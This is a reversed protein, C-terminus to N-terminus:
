QHHCSFLVRVARVPCACVNALEYICKECARIFIRRNRVRGTQMKVFALPAPFFHGFKPQYYKNIFLKVPAKRKSPRKVELCTGGYVCIFLRLDEPTSIIHRLENVGGTYPIIGEICIRTDYRIGLTRRIKMSTIGEEVEEKSTPVLWREKNTGYKVNLDYEM